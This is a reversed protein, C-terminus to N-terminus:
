RVQITYTHAGASVTPYWVLKIPFIRWGNASSSHSWYERTGALSNGDVLLRWRCATSGCVAHFGLTDMYTVRIMTEAFQKTHSVARGPINGWSASGWRRDDFNTAHAISGRPREEM